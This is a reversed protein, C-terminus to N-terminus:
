LRIRCAITEKDSATEMAYGICTAGSSGLSTLLKVENNMGASIIPQGATIAGSAYCDFIGDTWVSITTAGDSAVKDMSAVGSIAEGETASKVGTRADSLNLLTGKTIATGDAVTIRRPFGTSNTLEIPVLENDAM